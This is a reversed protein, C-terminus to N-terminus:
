KGISQDGSHVRWAKRGKTKQRPLTLTASFVMTHYNSPHTDTSIRELILSLETFHGHEVMRDAEDLILYKLMKFNNLHPNEDQPFSIICIFEYM